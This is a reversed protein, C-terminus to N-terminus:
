STTAEQLAVVAGRTVRGRRTSSVPITNQRKSKMYENYVRSLMFINTSVQSPDAPSETWSYGPFSEIATAFISSMNAIDGAQNPFMGKKNLDEIMLKIVAMMDDNFMVKDFRQNVVNIFQAALDDATYPALIYKFPFRRSLGQNAAFFCNNMSQEYGAVVLVSLGRYVDLFNVIETIADPGYGQQSALEQQSTCSMIGYAEDIFIISELGRGLFANTKSATEGQFSSVVDKASGVIINNPYDKLLVGIKGYVYAIVSAMKSKGTGAPGSLSINLFSENFPAMSRSLVYIQNALFNRMERRADGSLSFIGNKKDVIANILRSRVMEKSIQDHAKTTALNAMELLLPKISFEEKNEPVNTKDYLTAYKEAKKIYLMKLNQIIQEVFPEWTDEDELLSLVFAPTITKIQGLSSTNIIVNGEADKTETVKEQKLKEFNTKGNEGLSKIFIDTVLPIDPAPAQVLPILGEPKADKEPEDYAKLLSKPIIDIPEWKIDDDSWLVLAYEGAKLDQLSLLEKEWFNKEKKKSIRAIDQATFTKKLFVKKIEGGSPMGSDTSDDSPEKEIKKIARRKPPM